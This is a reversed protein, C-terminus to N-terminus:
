KENEVNNVKFNRMFLGNPSNISRPVDELTCTTIMAKKSNTSARTQELKTYCVAEYPYIQSNIVVSDITVRQIVNGQIMDNYFNQEKLDDYLKKASEDCLFFSKTTNEEIQQADPIISFFLEHFRRVHYSIEIPRNEKINGSLAEFQKNKDVIYIRKTFESSHKYSFFIATVSIVALSVITTITLIKVRKFHEDLKLIDKMKKSQKIQYIFMYLLVLVALFM